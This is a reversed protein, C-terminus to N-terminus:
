SPPALSLSLCRAHALVPPGSGRSLSVGRTMPGIAAPIPHGQPLHQRVPLEHPRGELRPFDVAVRFTARNIHFDGSVDNFHCDEDGRETYYDLVSSCPTLGRRFKDCVRYDCTCYYDDDDMM